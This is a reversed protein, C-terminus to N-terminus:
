EEEPNKWDPDVVLQGKENWMVGIQSHLEQRRKLWERCDKNMIEVQRGPGAWRSSEFDQMTVEDAMKLAIEQERLKGNASILDDRASELDMLVDSLLNHVAKNEISLVSLAGKYFEVSNKM